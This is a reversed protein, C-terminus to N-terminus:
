KTVTGNSRIRATHEANDLETAGKIMIGFIACNLVIEHTLNLKKPFIMFPPWLTPYFLSRTTIRLLWVTGCGLTKRVRSIKTNLISVGAGQSYVALLMFFRSDKISLSKDYVM